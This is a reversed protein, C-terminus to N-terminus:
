KFQLGKALGEVNKNMAPLVAANKAINLQADLQRQAVNDAYGLQQQLPGGFAGKASSGASALADKGLEGIRKAVEMFGKTFGVGNGKAPARAGAVAAEFAKRAADLGDRAGKLDDARDADRRDQAARAEREIADEQKSRDDENAKKNRDVAGQLMGRPALALKALAGAFKDDGIAGAFGAAMTLLSRLGAEFHNLAFDFGDLLLGGFWHDFDNWALKALKVLDHWGDVFFAKFDNWKGQMYLTTEAWAVQLGALAVTGAGLFDGKALAATIGEWATVATDKLSTFGRGLEALPEANKGLGLFVYGLGAAAAAVLGVPSLILGVAGATLKAAVVVGFLLKAAVAAAVSFGMLAAGGAVLGAGVAAAAVVAGRNEKVWERVRGIVERAQTGFNALDGATPLLAYGVELVAYKAAQWTATFERMVGASKAAAEPSLSAGAKVAEDKLAQLGAKGQKLYPLMKLGAAGFLDQAKTAQDIPNTITAFKEAIADLQEDLSQGILWRGNLGKLGQVLEANGDAAAAVKGALGDLVGGFEDLGVGGREFAYALESVSRTAVGFRDALQQVDRGRTVADAAVKALPALVSGGLAVGGAGTRAALGAFAKLRGAAQDLGRYLKNNEAFLEVFARGARIAGSGIAM